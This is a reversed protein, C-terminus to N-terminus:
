IGKLIIGATVNWIFIDIVCPNRVHPDRLVTVRFRKFISTQM